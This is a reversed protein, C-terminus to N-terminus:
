YDDNSDYNNDDSYDESDYNNDSYDDSDYDNDSYDDENILM